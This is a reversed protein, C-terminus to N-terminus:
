YEVAGMSWPASREEDNMDLEYYWPAVPSSAGSGESLDLGGERLALASTAALAGSFGPFAGITVPLAASFVAVPLQQFSNGACQGTPINAVLNPDVWEGITPDFYGNVGNSIFANNLLYIPLANTDAAVCDAGSNVFINNVLVPNASGSMLLSASSFGYVSNNAFIIRGSHMPSDRHLLVANGANALSPKQIINNRIVIDGSSSMGYQRLELGYATASNSSSGGSSIKNGEIIIPCSLKYLRLSIGYSPLATSTELPFYIAPNDRIQLIPSTGMNTPTASMVLYRIAYTEAGEAGSSIAANRQILARANDGIDIGVSIGGMATGASISANDEVLTLTWSTTPKLSIAQSIGSNANGAIIQANNRINVKGGLVQIACVSTGANLPTGAKILDNDHIFADAYSLDDSFDSNEYMVSIGYSQNGAYSTQVRSESLEFGAYYSRIGYSLAGAGGEIDCDVISARSGSALNLAYSSAAPYSPDAGTIRMTGTNSSLDCNNGPSSSFIGYAAGNQAGAGAGVDSDQVSLFGSSQYIGYSDVAYSMFTAPARGRVYSNAINVNVNYGECYLGFITNAMSASGQLRIRRLNLNYDDIGSVRIAAFNSNTYTSIQPGLVALYELEIDGSSGANGLTLTAEPGFGSTAMGEILSANASTFSAPDVLAPDRTWTAPDFSGSLRTRFPINLQEVYSGRAVRIETIRDRALEMLRSAAAGITQIPDLKSGIGGAAAANVYIADALTYSAVLTSSGGWDNFAKVRIDIKGDAGGPGAADLVSGLELSGSCAYGHLITRSLTDVSPDIGDLSYVLFVDPALFGYGASNINLTTGMRDGPPGDEVVVGSPLSLLLPGPAQMLQNLSLKITAEIGGLCVYAVESRGWLVKGTSSDKLQADVRYLGPQLTTNLNFSTPYTTPPPTFSSFDLATNGLSAPYLPRLSGSVQYNPSDIPWSINLNFSQTYGQFLNSQLAIEVRTVAEYQILLSKSGFAIPNGNNNKASVEILWSGPLFGKVPNELEASTLTTEIRLNNPGYCKLTYSVPTVSQPNNSPYLSATPLAIGPPLGKSSASVSSIDELPFAFRLSLPGSPNQADPSSSLPSPCSFLISLFLLIGLFAFLRWYPKM